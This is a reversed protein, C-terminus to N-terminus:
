KVACYTAFCTNFHLVSTEKFGVQRLLELQFTLSEPSDEKEIYDFVKQAYEAGGLSELYSFYRQNMVKNVMDSEHRVLDSVFFVGGPVLWQYVSSVIQQWESRTRLHHLVAGVVIIDFQQNKFHIDRIDGSIIEIEGSTVSCLRTQARTLMSSSLDLLFCNPDRLVSALKMSYNGAGCGIDLVNKAMPWGASVCKAILELAVPADITTSQGTDLNSFREVEAPMEFRARIEEISSKIKSNEM